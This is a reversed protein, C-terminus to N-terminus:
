RGLQQRDVGANTTQGVPALREALRVRKDTVGITRKRAVLVVAQQKTVADIALRRLVLLELEVDVTVTDGAREIDGIPKRNASGKLVEAKFDGCSVQTCNTPALGEPKLTKTCNLSPLFAASLRFM